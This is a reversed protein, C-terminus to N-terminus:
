SLDHKTTSRTLHDGSVLLRHCPRCHHPVVVVTVIPCGPWSGPDSSSSLWSSCVVVVVVAGGLQWQSCSSAPHFHPAISVCHHHSSLWPCSAALPPHWRWCCPWGCHLRPLLLLPSCPVVLVVFVVVLLFPVVPVVVPIVSLRSLVPACVPVTFTLRCVVFHPPPTLISLLCCCFPHRCIVLVSSSLPCGGVVAPPLPPDNVPLACAHSAVAM